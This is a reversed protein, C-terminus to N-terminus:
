VVGSEDQRHGTLQWLVISDVLPCSFISVMAYDSNWSFSNVFHHPFRLSM